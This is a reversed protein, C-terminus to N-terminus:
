HAPLWHAADLCLCPQASSGVGQRRGGPECRYTRGRAFVDLEAVASARLAKEGAWLRLSMRRWEPLSVLWCAMCSEWVVPLHWRSKDLCVQKLLAELDLAEASAPAPKYETLSSRRRVMPGRRSGAQGSVTEPATGHQEVKAEEKAWQSTRHATCDPGLARVTGARNCSIFTRCAGCM